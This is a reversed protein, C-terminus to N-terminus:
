VHLDSPATRVFFPLTSVPLRRQRESDERERDLRSAQRRRSRPTLPVADTM